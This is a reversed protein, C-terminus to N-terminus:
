SSSPTWPSFRDKMEQQLGTEFFVRPSCGFAQRFARHCQSYSGFGADNAAALFNNRDHEIAQIFRLLRLRTRYTTLTVGVDRHFYRSVESASGHALRAVDGRKLDPRAMLSALARNTLVHRDPASLRLAHAERWLEGVHQEVTTTAGGMIPAACAAVFRGLTVPDLRLRAAGGTAVATATGLVRESLAPTLGIVYLDFDPSTELLVHDQGPSWWLLDGATVSVIAEGVGFKGRGASILNLEPEVHFHRPRRNEPAYHWIHGRADGLMPFPQYLADEM